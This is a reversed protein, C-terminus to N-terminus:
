FAFVIGVKIQGQALDRNRWGGCYDHHDDCYDDSEWGSESTDSWYGRAELRFGVHEAIPVKIGGGLTASFRRSDSLGPHTPRLDAVGLGGSVFPTVHETPWQGLVGIHYYNVDIDFDHDQPAFLEDSRLGTSQHDASLEIQVHHNVPIDIIIGYTSSDKLQADYGLTPNDEKLIEGGWRYGLTPTIEVGGEQGLCASAVALAVVVTTLLVMTRMSHTHYKAM